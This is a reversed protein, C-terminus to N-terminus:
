VQLKRLKIIFFNPVQVIKFALLWHRAVHTHRSFNGCTHMVGSKLHQLKLVCADILISQIPTRILNIEHTNSFM